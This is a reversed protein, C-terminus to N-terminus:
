SGSPFPLVMGSSAGLGGHGPSPDMVGTDGERSVAKGKDSPSVWRLRMPLPDDASKISPAQLVVPEEFGVIYQEPVPGGGESSSINGGQPGHTKM